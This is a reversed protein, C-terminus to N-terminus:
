FTPLGVRIDKIIPVDIVMWDDYRQYRYQGDVVLPRGDEGVQILPDGNMYAIEGEAREMRIDVNVYGVLFGGYPQIDGERLGTIGREPDTYFRLNEAVWVERGEVTTQHAQGRRYVWATTDPVEITMDDEFAIDIAGDRATISELRDVPLLGGLDAGDAGEIPMARIVEGSITRTKGDSLLELMDRFSGQNARIHEYAAMLDEVSLAGEPLGAFPEPEALEPQGLDLDAEADGGGDEQPPLFLEGEGEPVPEHVEVLVSREGAPTPQPPQVLVSRLGDSFLPDPIPEIPGDGVPLPPPCGDDSTLEWFLPDPIPEIPGDGVPLPPPCDEDYQELVAALDDSADVTENNCDDAQSPASLALFLLWM